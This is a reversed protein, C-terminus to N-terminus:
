VHGQQPQPQQTGTGVALAAGSGSNRKLREVMQMTQDDLGLPNVVEQTGTGKDRRERASLIAADLSAQAEDLAAKAQVVGEDTAVGGDDATDATGSEKRDENPQDGKKRLFGCYAPELRWIMEDSPTLGARVLRALRKWKKGELWKAVQELFLRLSHVPWCICHCDLWKCFTRLEGWLNRRFLRSTCLCM